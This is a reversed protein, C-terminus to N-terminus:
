QLRIEETGLSFPCFFNQFSNTRKKKKEQEKDQKRICFALVCRPPSPIPPAIPLASVLRGHPQCFSSNERKRNGLSGM